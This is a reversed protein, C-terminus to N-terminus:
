ELNKSLNISQGMCPRPPHTVKTLYFHPPHTVKTLYYVCQQFTYMMVEELISLVEQEGEDLLERPSKGTVGEGSGNTSPPANQVGQSGGARDKSHAPSAVYNHLNNQYFNLLELANAMCILLLRLDPILAAM